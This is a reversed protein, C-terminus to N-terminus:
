GEGQAPHDLDDLTVRRGGKRTKFEENGLGGAELERLTVGMLGRVVEASGEGGRALSGGGWAGDGAKGPRAHGLHLEGKAAGAGGAFGDFARQFNRRAVGLSVTDM